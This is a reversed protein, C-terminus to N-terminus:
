QRQRRQIDQQVVEVFVDVLQCPLIVTGLFKDIVLRIHFCRQRHNILATVQSYFSIILLNAKIRKLKRIIFNTITEEIKQNRKISFNSIIFSTEVDSFEHTFQLTPIHLRKHLTKLYEEGTNRVLQTIIRFTMILNNKMYHKSQQSLEDPGLNAAAAATRVCYNM